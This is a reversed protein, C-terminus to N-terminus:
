EPDPKNPIWVPRQSFFNHFPKIWNGRSYWVVSSNYTCEATCKLWIEFVISNIMTM